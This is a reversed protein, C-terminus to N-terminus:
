TNKLKLTIFHWVVQAPQFLRVQSIVNHSNAPNNSYCATVTIPNTTINRSYETHLLTTIWTANRQWVKTAAVM